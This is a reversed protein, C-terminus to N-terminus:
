EIEHWEWRHGYYKVKKANCLFLLRTCHPPDVDNANNPLSEALYRKRHETFSVYYCSSQVVQHHNDNKWVM